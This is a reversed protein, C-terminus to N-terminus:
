NGAPRAASDVVVVEVPGKTAKLQLGLQQQIATFISAQNEKAASEVSPDPDVPAFRLDIDYRGKLDTKDLVQRQLYSTLQSALETMTGATYKIRTPYASMGGEISGAEKLKSGGKAVILEYVPLMRSERHHVLQFREALLAQMMQPVQTLPAGAPLKAEIDWGSTAMWAPGGAVQNDNLQFAWRVLDRLYLNHAEVRGPSVKNSHAGGNSSLALDAPKVSAVEFAIGTRGEQGPLACTFITLALLSVSTRM